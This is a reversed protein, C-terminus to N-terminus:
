APVTEARRALGIRAYVAALALPRPEITLGGRVFTLAYDATAEVTGQLIAYSGAREGSVRALAGTLHAPDVLGGSVVPELDPDLEGYIKSVSPATVTIPRPTITFTAPNTGVTDVDTSTLALNLAVNENFVNFVDLSLMSRVRRVNLLKTFRLDLQISREAYM